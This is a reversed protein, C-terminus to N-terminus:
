GKKTGVRHKLRQSHMRWDGSQGASGAGSRVVHGVGARSEQARLVVQM